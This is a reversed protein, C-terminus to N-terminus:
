WGTSEGIRLLTYLRDGPYVLRQPYMTHVVGHIPSTVEALTSGDLDTIRGILQGETLLDGQDAVAHFVGAKSASVGVWEM